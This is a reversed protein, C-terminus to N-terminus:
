KKSSKILSQLSAILTNIDSAVTLEEVTAVDDDPMSDVTYKLTSQLQKLDKINYM